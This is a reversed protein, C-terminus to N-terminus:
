GETEWGIDLDETLLVGYENKSLPYVKEVNEIKINFRKAIYKPTHTKVSKMIVVGGMWKSETKQKKRM